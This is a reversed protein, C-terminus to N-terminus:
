ARFGTEALRAALAKIPAVAVRAMDLQDAWAALSEDLVLMTSLAPLGEPASVDLVTLRTADMGDLALVAHGLEDRLAAGCPFGMVTDMDEALDPLPHAYRESSQREVHARERLQELYDRGRLIPQWLWLREVEGQKFMEAAPHAGARIGLGILPVQGARQGLLDVAAATSRAAGLLTFSEDSGESDGTGLYDFRLVAFGHGRLADALLAFLRQSRVQEHFFPPCLIISARVPVDPMHLVGFLRGGAVSIWLPEATM